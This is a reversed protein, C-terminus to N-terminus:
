GGAKEHRASANSGSALIMDRSSDADNFYAIRVQRGDALYGAYIM